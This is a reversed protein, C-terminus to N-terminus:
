VLKAALAIAASSVVDRVMSTPPCYANEYSTVFEEVTSGNLIAATVWNIRGTIDEGGIIQAGLLKHSERDAILKVELSKGGPYYRARTLGSARAEVTSLGYYEALGKSLGTGAVQLDGIQSVWASLVGPFLAYGGAANIGAVRGERVATSGLQSMTPGPAVASECMILDGALYVDKVLRGKRYPQLTPSVRVAGLAGIELGIQNPLELNARIGTAMIVMECPVEKSGIIVKEVKGQGRIAGLPTGMIFHIGEAECHSQVEGAIDADLIRPVVQPYMEVVTVQKGLHHFAMAAELGIVGAGAIVVSRVDKLAKQISMGDAISRLKFVGPLDAGEVPPIFVTGGTAIILSDYNLSEGTSLSVTKKDIDVATAKTRTRMTINREREYYDPDHMIISRFDKIKGELVFPIACPSYSVYEEETLVVIEADVNVSRAASAASIGAGGSGIVVIKKGM